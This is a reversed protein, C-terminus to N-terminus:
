VLKCVVAWSAGARQVLVRDGNVVSAALGAAASYYTNDPNPQGPRTVRIHVGSVGAVTGIFTWDSLRRHMLRDIDSAVM